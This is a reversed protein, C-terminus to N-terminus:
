GLRFTIPLTFRVRYCEKNDCSPIWNPMKSIVDEAAKDIFEDVGMLTNVNTIAGDREVIFQIYVIGQHGMNISTDPYVLNNQIFDFLAREGGPFEPDAAGGLEVIQEEEILEDQIELPDDESNILKKLSDVNLEKGYYITDTQVNNQAFCSFSLLVLLPFLNKM